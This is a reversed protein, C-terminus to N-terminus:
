ISDRLEYKFSCNFTSFRNGLFSSLSLTRSKKCSRGGRNSTTMLTYFPTNTGSMSCINIMNYSFNNEFSLRHSSSDRHFLFILLMTNKQAICSPYVISIYIICIMNIFLLMRNYFLPPFKPFLLVITTPPMKLLIGKM